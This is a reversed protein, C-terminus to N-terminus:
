ITTSENQLVRNSFRRFEPLVAIVLIFFISLLAYGMVQLQLEHYNIFIGAVLLGLPAAAISTFNVYAMINPVDIADPYRQFINLTIINGVTSSFGLVFLFLFSLMAVDSAGFLLYAVGMITYSLITKFWLSQKWNHMSLILTALLAGVGMSIEMMSLTHLGGHVIFKSYLPMYLQLPVFFVNILFFLVLLQFIFSYQKVYSRWGLGIVSYDGGEKRLNMSSLKISMEVSAAIFYGVGAILFILKLADFQYLIVALAPGVIRAISVASGVMSMTRQLKSKDAILLPLTLMAPNFFAAACNTIFFIGLLMFPSMHPHSYLCIFVVLFIFARIYDAGIMTYLPTWKRVMKGSFFACLFHPLASLVLLATLWHKGYHTTMFWISSILLMKDSLQTLLQSTTLKGLNFASKAIKM